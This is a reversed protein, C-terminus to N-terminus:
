LSLYGSLNASNKSKKVQENTKKALKLWKRNILFSVKILYGEKM